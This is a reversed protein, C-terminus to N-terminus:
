FAGEHDQPPPEPEPQEVFQAKLAEVTPLASQKDPLPQATRISAAWGPRSELNVLYNGEIANKVRTWCGSKGLKLQKALVAIAVGNPGAHEDQTPLPELAAVAEVTERVAPSVGDTISVDLVTALLDRAGAYDDWSAVIRGRADRERRVQALFALTQITTLIQPFDRRVRVAEAPILGALARAFPIFVRREGKLTLWRQFDVFKQRGSTDRADEENATDAQVLLILKTQGADDSLRDTLMRTSMQEDLASTGTTILNTPGEKVIRRVAWKDDVKEVVDYIM